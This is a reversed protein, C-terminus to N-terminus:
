LDGNKILDMDVENKLETEDIKAEQSKNLKIQKQKFLNLNFINHEKSCIVKDCEKSKNYLDLMDNNKYIEELAKEECKKKKKKFLIDYTINQPCASKLKDFIIKNYNHGIKKQKANLMKLDINQCKYKRCYKNIKCSNYLKKNINGNIDYKYYGCFKDITHPKKVKNKRTKKTNKNKKTKSLQSKSLKSKLLTDNSLTKKISKKSKTSKTSKTSKNNSNKKASKM